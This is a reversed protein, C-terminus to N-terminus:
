YEGKEIKQRVTDFLIPIYGKLCEECLEDGEVIYLKDPECETGCSDCYFRTVSYYPCNSGICPLGCNVCENTTEVM